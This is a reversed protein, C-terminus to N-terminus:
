GPEDHKERLTSKIKGAIAIAVKEAGHSNLHIGDYTWALGRREAAKDFYDDNEGVFADAMKAWPNVPLFRPASGASLPLLTRINFFEAHPVAESLNEIISSIGTLRRNLEAAPDEGVFLPPLTIIQRAHGSLVELVEAYLETFLDEQRTPTQKMAKKWISYGPILDAYVDNVGVWLVALESHKDEEPLAETKLRSLLSLVTDGGKGFNVFQTDPLLREMRRVYSAGPKGETISDGWLPIRPIKM